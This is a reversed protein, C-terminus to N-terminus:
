KTNALEIMANIMNVAGKYVGSINKSIMYASTTVVRNEKDIYAESEKTEQPAAGAKRMNEAVTADNGSTVKVGYKGLVKAIVVPAICMAGIVKGNKHATELVHSVSSEVDCTVGKEAFDCWNLIAGLGGPFVIGDYERVDLDSLPKINGRSIRSAEVMVNRHEPMKEGTMTNMVVTQEIDPAYCEYSCGAQDIALLACVSEHIESGDARGCGSLVVAFKHKNSM